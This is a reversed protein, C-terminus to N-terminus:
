MMFENEAVQTLVWAGLLYLGAFRIVNRGKLETFFSDLRM